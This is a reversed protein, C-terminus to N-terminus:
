HALGDSPETKESRKDSDRINNSCPGSPLVAEVLPPWLPPQVDFAITLREGESFPITGHWLYSPFLVLRAPIPEIARSPGISLGLREDPDGVTFWGADDCEDATRAPLAIYLASSIWGQPHVHNSHKGGSRLRVSWSGSFRVPRDRRRGLMPHRADIPPLNRVYDEVASVAAARVQRILPDIRSFLPGDTQTGGRVSQDLYEGRARHLTRLFAALEDLSPLASGLDIVQVLAPQGTLWEFRQDGVMRWVTAAYAWLEASQSGGLGRDLIPLTAAPEGVRLLHRVRWTALAEDFPGSAPGFLAEPYVADDHEAAYIAEYFAFDPLDVGAARSQDVLEKLREYRGSRLELNLLTERLMPQRPFSAIARELSQTAESGRGLTSLLQGLQEHGRLWMPSGDLAQRLREAGADGRGVAAEAAALGILVAENRPALARAQEFLAVADLGAEMATHAYGHAIKFDDPALRAAQAFSALAAEHEDLSRQLLATWQWLVPNRGREAAARM